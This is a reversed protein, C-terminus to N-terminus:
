VHQADVTEIVRVIGAADQAAELDDMFDEHRALRCIRALLKVHDRERGPPSLVVFFVRVPQLDGPGFRVPPRALAVGIVPDPLGPVTAHPIALGAGMVTPHTRERDLLREAILDESGVGAAAAVASVERVVGEVDDAALRTIVFDPRLFQSLRM